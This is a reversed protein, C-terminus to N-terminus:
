DSLVRGAPTAGDPMLDAVTSRAARALRPLHRINVGHDGREIQGIFTASMGANAAFEAQTLGLCTRRLRLRLGFARQFAHESDLVGV